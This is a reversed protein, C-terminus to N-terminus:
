PIESWKKSSLLTVNRIEDYNVKVEAIYFGLEDHGVIHGVIDDYYKNNEDVAELQIAIPKSKLMAESLIADIEETSQKEKKPNIKNNRKQAAVQAVTHESLFFGQWKKVGRDRYERNLYGM